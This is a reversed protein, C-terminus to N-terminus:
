WSVNIMGSFSRDTSRLTPKGRNRSRYKKPKTTTPTVQIANDYNSSWYHKIGSPHVAYVLYRGTNSKREFTWQTPVKTESAYVRGDLHYVPIQEEDRANRSVYLTVHFKDSCGPQSDSKIPQLSDQSGFPAQNMGMAYSSGLLSLLVSPRLIHM